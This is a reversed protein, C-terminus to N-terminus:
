PCFPGAISLGYSRRSGPAQRSAPRNSPDIGSDDHRAAPSGCRIRRHAHGKGRHRSPHHCLYTTSARGRWSRLRGAVLGVVVSRCHPCDDCRRGGSAVAPAALGAMAPPARPSGAPENRANWEAASRLLALAADVRARRAPAAYVQAFLAREEPSLEGRHWRLILDDELAAMREFYAEDTGLQDLIQERTEGEVRGLLFDTMARDDNADEM